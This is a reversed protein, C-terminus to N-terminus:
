LAHQVKIDVIMCLMWLGSIYDSTNWHSVPLLICKMKNTTLLALHCCQCVIGMRMSESFHQIIWKGTSQVRLVCSMVTKVFLAATKLLKNAPGGFCQQSTIFPWFVHVTKLQFCHQTFLRESDISDSEKKFIFYDNFYRWCIVSVLDPLFFWISLM